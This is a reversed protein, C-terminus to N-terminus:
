LSDLDAKHESLWKIIDDSEYLAQGNIVLCPVQTKGGIQKLTRKAVPDVAINKMPVMKHIQKLYNLVKQSYPCHPTYYLVLVTKEQVAVLPTPQQSELSPLDLTFIMGMLIFSMWSIRCNFM